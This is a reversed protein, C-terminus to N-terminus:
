WKAEGTPSWGFLSEGDFLKIWGWGLLDVALTQPLAAGGRSVVCLMAIVFLGGLSLWGFRM